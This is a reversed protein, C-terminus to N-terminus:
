LWIFKRCQNESCYRLIEFVIFFRLGRAEFFALGRRCRRPVYPDITRGIGAQHMESSLVCRDKESALDLSVLNEIPHALRLASEYDDAAPEAGALLHEDM